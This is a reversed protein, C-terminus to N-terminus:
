HLSAGGDTDAAFRRIVKYVTSVSVRCALAIDKPKEGQSYAERIAEITGQSIPKRGRKGENQNHQEDALSEMLINNLLDEMEKPMEMSSPDGEEGEELALGELEEIIGKCAESVEADSPGSLPASAEEVAKKPSIGGYVVKMLSPIYRDVTTLSAMMIHCCSEDTLPGFCSPVNIEFDVEGDRHDIDFKGLITGYNARVAWESVTKLSSEPAMFGFTTSVSLCGFHGAQERVLITLKGNEGRFTACLAGSPSEFYSIGIKEFHKKFAEIM